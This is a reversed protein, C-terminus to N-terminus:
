IFFGKDTKHTQTKITKQASQPPPLAPLELPEQAFAAAHPPSMRPAQFIVDEQTLTLAEINSAEHGVAVTLAELRL